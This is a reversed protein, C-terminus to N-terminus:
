ENNTWRTRPVRPAVQAMSPKVGFVRSRDCDNARIELKDISASMGQLARMVDRQLLIIALTLCTAVIPPNMLVTIVERTGGGSVPRVCTAAGNARRRHWCHDKEV